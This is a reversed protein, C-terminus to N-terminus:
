ETLLVLLSVYGRNRLQDWTFKRGHLVFRKESFDRGNKDDNKCTEPEQGKAGRPGPSGRFCGSVRLGKPGNSGRFHRIPKAGPGGHKKNEGGGVVGVKPFPFAREPGHCPLAIQVDDTHHFGLRAIGVGFATPATIKILPHDPLVRFHIDNYRKVSQRGIM